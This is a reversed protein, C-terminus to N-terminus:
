FSFVISAAVMAQMSVVVDIVVVSKFNQHLPFM